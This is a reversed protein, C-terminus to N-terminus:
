DGVLETDILKFRNRGDKKAEYLREDAKNTLDASTETETSFAVGGSSSVKIDTGDFNVVNNNIKKILKTCFEKAQDPDLYLIALFEEGGIRGVINPSSIETQLLQAFSILVADGGAHGYNDNVQKFFDIDFMITAFQRDQSQRSNEMAEDLAEFIVRRNYIGTLQDTTAQIHLKNVLEKERERWFKRELAAVVKALLITGNIPKPLYDQAGLQICKSISDVDNFASVMIVPLSESNHEKRFNKLLELGNIDPLIVDLLILDPTKKFVETIATNGDYATRCSLGQMSLRRQLVECNTVNDDVILIDSEKIEDNLTISYEIDGLSKFLAEASELQNSSNDNNPDLAEGRIYDVFNEIATETERALNIIQQFDELTSEELDDEYDEMLIESYGIIANLPTRLNHRLESYEEPSKKSSDANVGTNQVFAVEYQDILKSCSSKIQDIEDDSQLEAENLVKEVMDVYDFIANAPTIFNQKIQTLVIEEAGKSTEKPTLKDM